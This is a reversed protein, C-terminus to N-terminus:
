PIKLAWNSKRWGQCEFKSRFNAETETFSMRSSLL